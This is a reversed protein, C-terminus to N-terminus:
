KNTRRSSAIIPRGPMLPDGFAKAEYVECSGDSYEKYLSIADEITDAIVVKNNVIWIETTTWGNM